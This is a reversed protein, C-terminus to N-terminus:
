FSYSPLVFISVGTSGIRSELAGTILEAGVNYQKALEGVPIQGSEQLAENVEEIVSDWYRDSIIEGQIVTLEPRSAIIQEAVRECHVLEVGVTTALDVLSVRGLRDVENEVEIRLREQMFASCGKV